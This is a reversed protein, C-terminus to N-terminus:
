GARAEAPPLLALDDATVLGSSLAYEILRARRRTALNGRGGRL